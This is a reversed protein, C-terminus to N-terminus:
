EKRVRNRSFDYNARHLVNRRVIILLFFRHFICSASSNPSTVIDSAIQLESIAPFAQSLHRRNAATSSNTDGGSRHHVRVLLCLM